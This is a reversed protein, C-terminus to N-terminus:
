GKGLNKLGVYEPIHLHIEAQGFPGCPLLTVPPLLPDEHEGDDAEHEEEGDSAEKEEVGTKQEVDLPKVALNPDTVTMVLAIDPFM